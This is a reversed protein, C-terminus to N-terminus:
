VRHRFIDPPQLLSCAHIYSKYSVIHLKHSALPFVSSLGEICICFCILIRLALGICANNGQSDSQVYM